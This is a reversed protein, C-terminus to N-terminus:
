FPNIFDVISPLVGKKTTQQVSGTSVYEIMANAIQTSQIQNQNNIDRARVVGSLTMEIREKKMNIYRKGEIVLNGNPLVDIVQVTIAASFSDSDSIGGKGDFTRNASVTWAPKSVAGWIANSNVVPSPFSFQSNYAISKETSHQADKKISSEEVVLITLLDGIRRAKEHQYLEAAFSWDPAEDAAMFETGATLLLLASVSAIVKEIRAKM